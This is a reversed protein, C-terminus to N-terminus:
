DVGPRVMVPVSVVVDEGEATSSFRWETVGEPVIIEFVIRIAYSITPPKPPTMAPRPSPKNSPPDCLQREIERMLAADEINFLDRKPSANSVIQGLRLDPHREWVAILRELLPRIRNVDRM